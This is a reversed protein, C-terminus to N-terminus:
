TISQGSFMMQAAARVEHPQSRVKWLEGDSPRRPAAERERGPAAERERGPEVGGTGRRGAAPPHKWRSREGSGKVRTAEGDGGRAERDDGEQDVGAGLDVETSGVDGLVEM